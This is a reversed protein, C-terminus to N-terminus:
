SDSIVEQSGQSKYNISPLSAITEASLGRSETGVIEGLALLEQLLIVCLYGHFPFYLISCSYIYFVNMIQTVEYSLEDPYVEEWADQPNTNPLLILCPVLLNLIHMQLELSIVTSIALHLCLSLCILYQMLSHQLALTALQMFSELTLICISELKLWLCKWFCTPLFM